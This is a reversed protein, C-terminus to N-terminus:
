FIYKLALQIQRKDGTKGTIFGFSASAVTASSLTLLTIASAPKIAQGISFRISHLKPGSLM